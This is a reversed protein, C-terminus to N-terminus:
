SAAEAERVYDDPLSYVLYDASRGFQNKHKITRTNLYIGDQSRLESMRATVNKIMLNKQFDDTTGEGVEELYELIQECQNTAM